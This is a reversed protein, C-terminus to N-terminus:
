IQRAPDGPPRPLCRMAVRHRKILYLHRNSLFGIIGFSMILKAHIEPILVFLARWFDDSRAKDARASLAFIM